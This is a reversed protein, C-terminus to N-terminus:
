SAARRERIAPFLQRIDPPLQALVHRVAGEEIMRSIAGLTDAIVSRAQDRDLNLQTSVDAIMTDATVTRDPGASLQLLEDHMKLPLQAILHAAGTYPIRRVISGLVIFSLQPVLEEGLGVEIALTRYFTSLTQESHAESRQAARPGRQVQFEPIVRRGIQRQVIRSLQGSDFSKSAILDDLTVIGICRRQKGQERVIPVRRVAFREMLEAVDSLSCGEDATVPNPTMLKSIPVATNEYNAALRVAFDRDTVVGCLEGNEDGVLICGVSNDRMAKAANRASEDEPLMVIRRQIFSDISVPM